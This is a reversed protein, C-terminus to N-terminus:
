CSLPKRRRCSCAASAPPPSKPMYVPAAHMAFGIGLGYVTLGAYIGWLTPSLAALCSGTFYLAAGIQVELKRGLDDAFRFCILSSLCAGILNLSTLFGQQLPDLKWCQGYGWSTWTGVEGGM